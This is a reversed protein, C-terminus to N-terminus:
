VATVPIDVKKWRCLRNELAALGIFAFAGIASMALIAAYMRNYSLQQWTNMIHFGLGSSTAFSEALYLIAFAIAINMRLSTLTAPLCAPFYIFRLLQFNGAGLSRLSHILEVPINSSADRVIVIVQFLLILSILFVKSTDGIGMFLIVVPLLAVKPVPYTIYILPYFFKDLKKNQGLILGVPLGIATAFVLSLLIRWSSVLIHWGLDRPLDHFFAFLVKWPAPLIPSNLALAAIEWILFLAVISLIIPKWNM